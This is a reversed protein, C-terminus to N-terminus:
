KVAELSFDIWKANKIMYSTSIYNVGVEAYDKINMENIQGSVETLINAPVLKIGKKLDQLNWNDFMIVDPNLTIAENLEKLDRVEVEIKYRSDYCEKVCSIAKSVGGAADIHNDKILVMQSLDFRHNQGGGVIVAEKELARLLPTTKRTDLLIAKTHKIKDKLINTLTAIGSLHSIFNLATREGKLIANINGSVYAVIEDKKIRDGNTFNSDIVIDKDLKFFTNKFLDFGALTADENIVLQFKSKYNEKIICDTTLDGAELIDENLANMIVQEFAYNM